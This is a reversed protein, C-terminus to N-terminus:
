VVGRRAELQRRVEAARARSLPYNKLLIICAIAALAPAATLFVRMGLITGPAQNAKLAVDFGVWNLVVGTVLFALSTGAKTLWSFVAGFLGERRQGSALEDEDCIDAFMSQVVM